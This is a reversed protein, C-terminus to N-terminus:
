LRKKYISIKQIITGPYDKFICSYFKLKFNVDRIQVGRKFVLHMYTYIYVVSIEVDGILYIISM